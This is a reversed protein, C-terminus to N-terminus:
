NINNYRFNVQVLFYLFRDFHTQNHFQTKRNKETLGINPRPPYIQLLTLSGPRNFTKFNIKKLSKIFKIQIFYLYLELKSKRKFVEACCDKKLIKQTNRYKSYDGFFIRLGKLILHYMRYEIIRHNKIKGITFFLSKILSECYSLNLHFFINRDSESQIKFAKFYFSTRLNIENFELLYNFNKYNILNSKKINTSLLFLEQSHFFSFSNLWGLKYLFKLPFLNSSNFKFTKLFIPLIKKSKLSNELEFNNNYKFYFNKLNMCNKASVMTEIGILLKAFNLLIKSAPFFFLASQLLNIKKEFTFNDLFLQLWLKIYSPNIKLFSLFLMDRSFDNRLKITELFIFRFNNKKFALLYELTCTAISFNRKFRNFLTHLLWYIEDKTKTRVINRYEIYIKM